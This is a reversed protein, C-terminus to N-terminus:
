HESVSNKDANFFNDLNFDKFSETMIIENNLENNYVKHTASYIDGGILKIVYATLLAIVCLILQIYSLLPIVGRKTKIKKIHQPKEEFPEDATQYEVPNRADQWGEEYTINDM